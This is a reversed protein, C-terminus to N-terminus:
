AINATLPWDGSEGDKRFSTFRVISGLSNEIYFRSEDLRALGATAVIANIHELFPGRLAYQPVRVMFKRRSRRTAYTNLPDPRSSASSVMTRPSSGVIRMIPTMRTVVPNTNNKLHLANFVFSLDVFM